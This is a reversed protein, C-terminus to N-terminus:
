STEGLGNQSLNRYVTYAAKARAHGWNMRRQAEAISTPPPQMLDLTAADEDADAVPPRGGRNVDPDHLDDADPASVSWSLADGRQHLRFMGASQQGDRGQAFERVSGERDKVVSLLASGGRGPAFPLRATVRLAAGDVARLKALTGTAGFRRSDPNKALHDVVVVAAGARALPRLIRRHADTYEDGSNSSLGLMPLLEGLSDIVVLAPRWEALARVIEALHVRDEPDSLRFVDPDTLVERPVGLSVLRSAISAAGNHDLDVFAVRRSAKLAETGAALACWTKGSEPDGILVNVRGAYLLAHGDERHLLRPRVRSPAGDALVAGLDVWLPPLDSEPTERLGGVGLPESTELSGEPDILAAPVDPYATSIV